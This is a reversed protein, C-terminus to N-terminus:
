MSDWPRQTKSARYAIGFDQDHIQKVSQPVRFSNL